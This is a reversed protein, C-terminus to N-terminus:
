IGVACILWSSRDLRCKVSGEKECKMTVGVSCLRYLQVHVFEYFWLMLASSIGSLLVGVHHCCKILCMLQWPRSKGMKMEEDHKDSSM